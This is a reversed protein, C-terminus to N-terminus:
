RRSQLSYLIRQESSAVAKKMEDVSTALESEVFDRLVASVAIPDIQVGLVAKCSSAPCLFVICRKPTEGFGITGAVEQIEVERVVADCKPCKGTPITM